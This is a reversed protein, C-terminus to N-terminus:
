GALWGALWSTLGPRGGQTSGGWRVDGTDFAAQDGIDAGTQLNSLSWRARVVDGAKVVVGAAGASSSSSSASMVPSSIRRAAQARGLPQTCYCYGHLLLVGYSWM